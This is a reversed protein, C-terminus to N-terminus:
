ATVTVKRGAIRSIMESMATLKDTVPAADRKKMKMREGLEDAGHRCGVIFPMGTALRFAIGNRISLFFASDIVSSRNDSQRPLEGPIVTREVAHRRNGM